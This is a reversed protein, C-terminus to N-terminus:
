PVSGSCTMDPQASGCGAIPAFGIQKNERDFVTYYAEMMAQGIINPPQSTSSILFEHCGQSSGPSPQFYLAPPVSLTVGGNFELTVCPLHKLDDKTVCNLSIGASSAASEIKSSIAQYISETFVLASTGSDIITGCDAMESLQRSASTQTENVKFRKDFFQKYGDEYGYYYNDDPNSPSSSPSSSAAPSTMEVCYYLEMTIPTYTLEGSHLASDYGGLTLTGTGAANSGTWGCCQMAFVNAINSASVVSDFLPTFPEDSSILGSYAFGVIGQNNVASLGNVGDCNNLFKNQSLIGAFTPSGASQGALEVKAGSCVKGSWGTPTSPTGYENSIAKGDCSADGSPTYYTSCVGSESSAAVAFTSSGSDVIVEFYQTGILVDVSYDAFAAGELSASALLSRRMPRNGSPPRLPATRLKKTLPMSSPPAKKSVQWGIIGAIL